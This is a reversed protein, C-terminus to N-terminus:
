ASATYVRTENPNIDKKAYRLAPVILDAKFSSAKTRESTFTFGGPVSAQLVYFTKGTSKEEKIVINRSM